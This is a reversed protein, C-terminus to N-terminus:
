TRVDFERKLYYEFWETRCWLRSMEQCLEIKYIKDILKREKDKNDPKFWRKKILQYIGSIILLLLTIAVIWYSVVGLADVKIIKNIVVLAFAIACFLIPRWWTWTDFCYIFIKKM